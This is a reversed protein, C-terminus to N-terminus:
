NTKSKGAVPWGYVKAVYPLISRTYRRVMKQSAKGYYIAHFLTDCEEETGVLERYLYHNVGDHHADDCHVNYADAYFTIYDGCTSEFISNINRGLIRYGSVRGNWLGLDGICVIRNGTNLDLNMREDDFWRDNDDYMDEVIQWDTPIDSGYWESILDANTQSYAEIADDSTDIENTWIIRKVM